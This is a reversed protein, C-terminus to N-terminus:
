FIGELDSFDGGTENFKKFNEAVEKMEESLEAPAKKQSPKKTGPIIPRVLAVWEELGKKGGVTDLDFSKNPYIVLCHPCYYSKFQESFHQIEENCAKCIISLGKPLCAKDFFALHHKDPEKHLDVYIMGHKNYLVSKGEVSDKEKKPMDDEAKTTTTNKTKTKDKNKKKSEKSEKKPKTPDVFQQAEMVDNVIDLVKQSKKKGTPKIKELPDAKVYDKIAKAEYELQAKCEKCLDGKTNGHMNVGCSKCNKSYKSTMASEEYPENQYQTEWKSENYVNSLIDYVDKPMEDNEGAQDSWKNMSKLLMEIMAKKDDAWESSDNYDKNIKM